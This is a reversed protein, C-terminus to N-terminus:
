RKGDFPDGWGYRHHYLMWDCSIGAETDHFLQYCIVQRGLETPVYLVQQGDSLSRQKIKGIGFDALAAPHPATGIHRRSNLDGSLWMFVISVVIAVLLLIAWGDPHMIRWPAKM